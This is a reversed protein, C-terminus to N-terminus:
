GAATVPAQCVAGSRMAEAAEEESWPLTLTPAPAAGMAPAEAAISALLQALDQAFASGASSNNLMVVVTLGTDPDVLSASIFGPIVGAHGRLPGLEQGGLGYRQWPPAAAGQTATEWQAEASESSLLSGQALARAWTKMDALTSVVGGAVWGMSNSLETEDRLQECFMRGKGDVSVAYGHPHRGPIEFESGAPFSTDDLGLPGFIYQRYLSQWSQHTASRLAMGLLVIGTSSQSWSGGPGSVRRGSMGSSLIEMPPWQRTPNAVFQPALGQYYDALGSTHRCLQGLTIGEVDATRKLYTSVLDDLNVRGDDVLRLLVTCTMATTNTGIRFRMDPTLPTGGTTTTTGPSAVWEGAWPAWVGALAGSSGSLALADALAADLRQTIGAPLPPTVQKEESEPGTWATCSALGFSAAVVIALVIATRTRVFRSKM